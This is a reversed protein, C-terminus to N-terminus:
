APVPAVEPMTEHPELDPPIKLWSKKTKWIIYTFGGLPIQMGYSLVRFLLVAAVVQAHNAHGLSALGGILGLEVVGVGGPTIPVTSLLRVFAFVGLIQPWSLEQESVGVHRLCLVLLVFLATHSLLTFGTLPLWQKEVLKITQKRLRVAAEGWEHVPPKRFLKRISTAIRGLREGVRRAFAKKWLIMGFLLVSAILAAIGILGAVLLGASASGTIALIALALVPLTLKVYINWIGTVLAQLAIEAKTFGWTRYIYYGFAVAVAAGGPMINSISTTTQNNVAAQGLRLGPMAATQQPWYTLLNFAMAIFLSTFELWTLSTITKWVDSYNAVKPIVLGFIAVAVGVSIVIQLIRWNRKKNTAPSAVTIAEAM